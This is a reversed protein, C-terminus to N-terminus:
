EANLLSSGLKHFAKRSEVFTLDNIGADGLANYLQTAIPRFGDDNIGYISGVLARLQQAAKYPLSINIVEVETEVMRKETTKVATIETM